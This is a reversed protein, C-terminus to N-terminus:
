NLGLPTTEAAHSDELDFTPKNPDRASALGGTAEEVRERQSRQWPTEGKTSSQMPRRAVREAYWGANFGQWGFECCATVAEALTIGAKGAERALGAIATQTLPGARKAKRVAMYDRVLEAPVGPILPGFAEVVAARGPGNRTGKSTGNRSGDGTKPPIEHSIQPDQQPFVPTKGPFVPTKAATDVAGSNPSKSEAIAGNEPAKHTPGLPSPARLVVGNKTTNLRYVVVQGTGGRRDGTDIIHGAERLRRLGAEVTKVDQGTRETLHRYSPWCLMDGAEANVCDAMAVLVFKASSKEVPQALAWSIADYSM